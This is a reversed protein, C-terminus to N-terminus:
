IRRAILTFDDRKFHRNTNRGKIRDEKRKLEDEIRKTIQKPDKDFSLRQIELLDLNDSVGDTMYLIIDGKCLAVEKYFFKLSGRERGVYNTIISSNELFKDLPNIQGLIGNRMIYAPSDGLSVFYLMNCFM